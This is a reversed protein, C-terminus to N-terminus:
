STFVKSDGAVTHVIVTKNDIWRATGDFGNGTHLDM